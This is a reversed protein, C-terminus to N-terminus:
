FWLDEEKERQPLPDRIEYWPAKSSVHIHIDPRVGEDDDITGVRVYVVDPSKSSSSYIPSGCGACFHRLKGPSSEYATILDEGRVVRFITKEFAANTAFASGSAKRCQRCHCYNTGLPAGGIEYEVRGCLCCGKM